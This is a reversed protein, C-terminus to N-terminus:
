EEEEKDKKKKEEKLKQYENWEKKDWTADEGPKQYWDKAKWEKWAKASYWPMGGAGHHEILRETQLVSATGNRWALRASSRQSRLRRHWSPETSRCTSPAVEGLTVIAACQSSLNKLFVYVTRAVFGM